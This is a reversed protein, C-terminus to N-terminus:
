AGYIYLVDKNMIMYGNGVRPVKLWQTARRSVKSTNRGSTRTRQYMFM